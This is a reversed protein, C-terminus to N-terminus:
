AVQLMGLYLMVGRGILHYRAIAYNPALLTHERLICFAPAGECHDLAVHWEEGTQAGPCDHEWGDLPGNYFSCHMNSTVEM